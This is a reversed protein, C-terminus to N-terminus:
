KGVLATKLVEDREPNGTDVSGLDIRAEIRGTGPQAPDFHVVATFREFSSEFKAGQQIATFKLSSGTPELKFDTAGAPAGVTSLLVAVVTSAGKRAVTPFLNM